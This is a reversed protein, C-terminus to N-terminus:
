SGREVRSARWLDYRWLAVCVVAGLVPTTLCGAVYAFWDFGRM